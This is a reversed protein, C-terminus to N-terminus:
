ELELHIQGGFALLNLYSQAILRPMVKLDRGEVTLGDPVDATFVWGTILLSSTRQVDVSGVRVGAILVDHVYHGVRIARLEPLAGLRLAAEAAALATVAPERTM